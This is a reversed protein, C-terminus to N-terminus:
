DTTFSKLLLRLKFAFMQSIALILNVGFVRVCLAVHFSKSSFHQLKKTSARADAILMTDLATALAEPIKKELKFNLLITGIIVIRNPYLVFLLLFFCMIIQESKKEQHMSKIFQLFM